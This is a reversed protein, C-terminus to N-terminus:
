EVVATDMDPTFYLIRGCNLCSVIEQDAQCTVVLQRSLQMHCGGCVGRAVGVVVSHGKQKLLREYRVRVDEEVAGALVDRDAQLGELEQRLSAERAALDALRSDATKKVEAAAQTATAATKQGAEIQEMLALQQDDLKTIAEKCMDIEHTLARYEENKRTQFQQVSYKEIQQKKAEVELELRKRDSELHKVRDKATEVASQSGASRAQLEQRDPLIRALEEQVRHIHRDRDQLVLLKEIVPLM